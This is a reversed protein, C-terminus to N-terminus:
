PQVDSRLIIPSGFLNTLGTHQFVTEVTRSVAPNKLKRHIVM